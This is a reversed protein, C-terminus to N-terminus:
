AFLVSSALLFIGIYYTLLNFLHIKKNRKKWFYLFLISVDSIMFLLGGAGALTHYLEPLTVAIRLSKEALMAVFFAYVLICPRLRGTHLLKGNTLWFTILVAVLPFVLDKADPKQIYSMWRIFFLHGALFALLGLAFIRKKRYRNYFALLVDGTFCCAFAPLMLWFTKIIGSVWAALFFVLLFAVSQVSKWIIYREKYNEKSVAYLFTTLLIGYLVTITFFIVVRDTM